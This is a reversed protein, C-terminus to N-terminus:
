KVAGTESTNLIYTKKKFITAGGFCVQDCLLLVCRKVTQIILVNFTGLPPYRDDQFFSHYVKVFILRVESTIM